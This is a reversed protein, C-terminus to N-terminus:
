ILREQEFLGILEKFSKGKKRAHDLTIVHLKGKGKKVDDLHVFFWKLFDFRVGIWPEAGFNKAFLRLQDLEEKQFYKKNDRTSKCEIALYRGSNGALIDPAPMTTSGSGAARLVGWEHKHFLHALEREANSGKRKRGM